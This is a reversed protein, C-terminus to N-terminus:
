KQVCPLTSGWIGVNYSFERCLFEPSCCIEYLWSCDKVVVSYKITLRGGPSAPRGSCTCFVESTNITLGAAEPDNQRSFMRPCTNVSFSALYSQVQLGSRTIHSPLQPRLLSQSKHPAEKAAIRGPSNGFLLHCNFPRAQSQMRSIADEQYGNKTVRERKESNLIYAHGSFGRTRHTM